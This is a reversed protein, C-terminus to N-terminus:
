LSYPYPLFGDRPEERLLSIVRELKERVDQNKLECLEYNIRERLIHEVAIKATCLSGHLTPLFLAAATGVAYLGCINTECNRNIRIGGMMSHVSFHLPILDRETDYGLKKLVEYPTYYDELDKVSIHKLSAYWGGEETALGKDILREFVANVQQWMHTTELEPMFRRGQSDIFMPSVHNPPILFPYIYIARNLPPPYALEAMHWLQFEIGMLEAGARYALALGDGTQERSPTSYKWLYGTTGTALIIAKARIVLFEGDRYNLAIAGVVRGNDVILDTCITEEFFPIENELIYNRFFQAIANGTEGYRM